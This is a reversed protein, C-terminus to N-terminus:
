EIKIYEGKETRIYFSNEALLFNSDVYLEAPNSYIIGAQSTAVCRYYSIDELVVSFIDFSNEIKNLIDVYNGDNDLKQWKYTIDNFPGIAKATFTVSLGFIVRQSIPHILWKFEETFTPDPQKPKETRLCNEIAKFRNTLEDIRTQYDNGINYEAILILKLSPNLIDRGDDTGVIYTKKNTLDHVIDGYYADNPLNLTNLIYNKNTVRKGGLTIGDGIFVRKTDTTYVLEGEEFVIQKRQLDTGKRVKIKGIRRDIM